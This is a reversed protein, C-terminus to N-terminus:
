RPNERRGSNTVIRCSSLESTNRSSLQTATATISAGIPASGVVARFSANGSADTTVTAGGLFAAGEGFGSPDCQSNSFFEIAFQSNPLSNLTGSVVTSNQGATARQIVPFNQLANGGDDSDGPDNPTVGGGSQSLLDIGLGGNADISNGSIRVGHATADVTVGITENFAIRNGEGLSTGGITIASPAPSGPWFSTTIGAHNAVPNEGTFDTGILNGRIVTDAGAGQISIGIGFRQGAFHNVGDVVIGSILNSLIQTGASDRALIGAPGIQGFSATGAANTGIYNGQIVTGEASQLSIQGGVPFGEEGYHGSGSILNREAATPGGIRNNIAFLNSSPASRVEVGYFAGSL